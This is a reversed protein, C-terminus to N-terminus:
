GAPQLGTEVEQVQCYVTVSAVSQESDEPEKREWLIM